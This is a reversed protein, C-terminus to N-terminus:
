QILNNNNTVKPYDGMLIGDTYACMVVSAVRRSVFDQKGYDLDGVQKNLRMLADYSAKGQSRQRYGVVIDAILGFYGIRTMEDWLYGNIVEVWDPAVDQSIREREFSYLPFIYGDVEAGNALREYVEEVYEEAERKEISRKWGFDICSKKMSYRSAYKSYEKDLFDGYVRDHYDAIIKYRIDEFRSVLQKFHVNRNMRNKRFMSVFWTEICRRIERYEFQSCDRDMLRDLAVMLGRGTKNNGKHQGMTTELGINDVPNMLKNLYDGIGKDETVVDSRFGVAELYRGKSQTHNGTIDVSAFTKGGMSVVVESWLSRLRSEIVRTHVKDLNSVTLIGHAHAHLYLKGHCSVNNHDRHMTKSSITNEITIWLGITTGNNKNYNNVLKIAKSKYTQVQDVSLKDDIEPAKTATIFRVEGRDWLCAKVSKSVNDAEKKRVYNACNPCDYSGCTKMGLFKVKNEKCEIVVSSKGGAHNNVWKSCNTIGKFKPKEVGVVYKMLISSLVRQRDIRTPQSRLLRKNGLPRTDKPM